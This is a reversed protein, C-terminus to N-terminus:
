KAGAYASAEDVHTLNQILLDETDNGEILRGESM